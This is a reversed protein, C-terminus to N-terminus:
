ARKREKIRKNKETSDEEKQNSNLLTIAYNICM